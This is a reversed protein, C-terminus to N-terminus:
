ELWIRAIELRFSEAEKNAILFRVQALTKGPFNPINLRDGRYVPVMESLAIEVTQWDGITEFEYVYYHRADREAEVLFQYRKGDGKLHIRATSYSSIDIPDFYYQLSSFGGDNELSVEGSFVAHGEDNVSFRGQSRGGMVVDDEVEWGAADPEQSFDFIVREEPPTQGSEAAPEAIQEPNEQGHTVPAIGFWGVLAISLVLRVISKM